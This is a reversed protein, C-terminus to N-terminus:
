FNAEAQAREVCSTIISVTEREFRKKSFAEARKMARETMEVKLRRDGLLNCVIQAAEEVSDFAFGCNEQGGVIDTWAGGSRHVVPVLGAAMAEVIAIGFPENQKPHLYAQAEKMIDLLQKRSANPVIVVRNEVGLSRAYARINKLVEHSNQGLFGMMVFRAEPVKAAILPIIELNKHPSFLSTTVIWPKSHQGSAFRFGTVDVPPYLVRANPWGQERLKNSSWCSNALIPGGRYRERLESLLFRRSMNYASRVSSRGHNGLPTRTMLPPDHIYLLNADLLLMEAHTNIRLDFNSLSKMVKHLIGELWKGHFTKSILPLKLSPYVQEHDVPPDLGFVQEIRNWDTRQSTVLCTEHKLKKLVRLFGLCVRGAGGLLNLNSHVVAIKM